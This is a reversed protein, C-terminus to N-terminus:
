FKLKDSPEGLYFGQAFDIDLEKIVKFIQESHVYEAVTKIHLEKAFNAIMKTIIKMDDNKDIHKILSGDIKILDVQLELLREFNSYGSGFDDIAIKSGYSKVDEIFSMISKYNEIGESELLEFIVWPGLGSQELKQLIFDTTKKDTIDLFSLNISFECASHKFTEFTKEILMRSLEHYIKSNKAISLFEAPPMISGDEKIIRMLSEYKNIKGSKLDIIPQFYPIIKNNDVAEKLYKLTQINKNYEQEKNSSQDYICFSKKAIKAEKYAIQALKLQNSKAQAAGITMSLTIEVGNCTFKEKLIQNSLTQLYIKLENLNFSSSIVAVYIDAEFKYLKVNKAKPLNASLWQSTKLLIDDGFEHGYLSNISEFSDINFLIYTIENDQQILKKETFLKLRNPLKTLTDTYLHKKINSKSVVLDTIDNALFIYEILNEDEDVVPTFSCNLHLSTKDPTSLVIAGDWIQQYKLTEQIEEKKEKIFELLSINQCEEKIMHMIQCFNRNAKIINYNSDLKAYIGTNEFADLYKQNSISNPQDIIKQYSKYFFMKVILIFLLGLGIYCLTSIEFFTALLICLFLAIILIKFLLSNSSM